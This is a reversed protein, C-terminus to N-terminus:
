RQVKGPITCRWSTKPYPSSSRRGFDNRNSFRNNGNRGERREDSREYNGRRNEGYRSNNQNYRGPSQSFQNQRFPQGHGRGRMDQYFRGPSNSRPGGRYQQFPPRFAQCDRQLHYYSGCTFCRTGDNRESNRTDDRFRVKQKNRPRGRFHDEEEDESEAFKMNGIKKRVISVVKEVASKVIDENENEPCMNVPFSSTSMIPMTNSVMPVTYQLQQTNQVEIKNSELAAEIHRAKTIFADINAFPLHQLVLTKIQPLLGNLLLTVQLDENYNYEMMKERLNMIYEDVSQNALQHQSLTAIRRQIQTPAAIIYKERFLEEITQFQQKQEDDLGNFWSQAPGTM